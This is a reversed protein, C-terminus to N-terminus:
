NDKKTQPAMKERAKKMVPIVNMYEWLEIYRSVSYFLKFIDEDGLNLYVEDKKVFSGKKCMVGGTQTKAPVGVGNTIRLFWPYRRVEGNKDMSARVIEFKNVPALGNEDANVAIIKNQVWSVNEYHAKILDFIYAIDEPSLNAEVTVTKDGTGTSYDLMKIGIRSPITKHGGASHMTAYDSVKAAVLKDNFAILKKDTQYKTIQRSIFENKEEM